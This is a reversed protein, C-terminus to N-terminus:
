RRRYFGSGFGPCVLTQWESPAFECPFSIREPPAAPSFYIWRLYSSQPALDYTATGDDEGCERIRAILRSQTAAFRNHGVFHSGRQGVDELVVFLAEGREYYILDLRCAGESNVNQLAVATEYGTGSFRLWHHPSGNLEPFYFDGTTSDYFNVDTGDAAAFLGQMDSYPPDDGLMFDPPQPPQIPEAVPAPQLRTLSFPHPGGTLNMLYTRIGGYFHRTEEVSIAMTIADLPMDITRSNACDQIDLRRRSPWFTLTDGELVANGVSQEFYTVLGCSFSVGSAQHAFAYQGDERLRLEVSFGETISFSEGVRNMYEGASARTQQWVGALEAPVNGPPLNGVMGSDLRGGGGDAPAGADLDDGGVEEGCGSVIMVVWFLILISRGHASVDM